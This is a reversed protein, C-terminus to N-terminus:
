LHTISPSDEHPEELRVVLRCNNMIFAGLLIPLIFLIASSVYYILLFLCVGLSLLGFTNILHRSALIFGNQIAARVTINYLVILPFAYLFIVTVLFLGLIDAGIGLWILSPVIPQAFHPLILLLSSIPVLAMLSLTISAPWYHFLARAMFQPTVVKYQLLASEQALLATWAPGITFFGIILAPLWLGVFALVLAPLCLLNFFLGALLMQPLNDWIQRFTQGIVTESTLRDFEADLSM